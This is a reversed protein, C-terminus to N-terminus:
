GALRMRDCLAAWCKLCLDHGRIRHPRRGRTAASSKGRARGLALAKRRFCSRCMM